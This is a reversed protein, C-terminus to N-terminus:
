PMIVKRRAVISHRAALLGGAAALLSEAGHRAAVMLAFALVAYRAGQVGLVLVPSGRKVLRGVLWWLSLYYAAGLGVGAAIAATLSAMGLVPEHWPSM